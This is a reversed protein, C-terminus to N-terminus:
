KQQISAPAVGQVPLGSLYLRMVESDPLIGREPVSAVCGECGEDEAFWARVEAVSDLGAAVM